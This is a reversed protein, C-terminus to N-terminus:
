TRENTQGLTLSSDRLAKGVEHAVGGISYYHTCEYMTRMVKFSALSLQAHSCKTVSDKSLSRQSSGTEGLGM